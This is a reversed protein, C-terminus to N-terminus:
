YSRGTRRFKDIRELLSQIAPRNIPRLPNIIEPGLEPIPAMGRMAQMAEGRSGQLAKTIGAGALYPLSYVGAAPSAMAISFPDGVPGGASAQASGAGAAMAALAPRKTMVDLGSVLANLPTRRYMVLFQGPKSELVEGVKGTIGLEPLPTQLTLRAAEPKTLGARGLAERTAVDGASMIRGFPNWVRTTQASGKEAIARGVEPDRLERAWTKVTEPRFFQKIPELSRREAAAVFPTGLNGLMSKPVATGSLAGLHRAGQLLDFAKSRLAPSRALAGAGLLGAGALIQGLRGIGGPQADSEESPASEDGDFVSLADEPSDAEIVYRRGNHEITYRPM